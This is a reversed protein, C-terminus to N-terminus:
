NETNLASQGIKDPELMAWDKSLFQDNDIEYAPKIYKKSLFPNIYRDLDLWGRWGIHITDQMYYPKDSEKSLDAINNFGQETLQHKIKKVTDQYMKPSLGTYDIWKQNIPPIVFLVEINQKAFEDLVLQFDNYEKSRTYDFHAQSGKLRGVNARLRENYFSNKIGLDNNTTNKKAQDTAIQDLEEYNYTDPLPKEMPIIKKKYNDKLDFRSFLLDENSLIGLDFSVKRKQKESLPHGKAVQRFLEDDQIGMDLYRQAAYRDEASDTANKLFYIGQIKSYFTQFAAKNQGKPDFWQPSISFVVKKSAIDDQIPQMASYQTLSQTGMYGLLFPTYDRKYKDALVSPHFSDFRTLESSGMFPVYRKEKNQFAAKKLARGKFVRTELSSAAKNLVKDSYRVDSNTFALLSFLIGAAIVLPGFIWWLRKVLKM